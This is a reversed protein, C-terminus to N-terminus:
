LEAKEEVKPNKEEKTLPWLTGLSVRFPHQYNLYNLVITLGM